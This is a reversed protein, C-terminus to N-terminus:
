TRPMPSAVCGWPEGEDFPGARRSRGATKGPSAPGSLSSKVLRMGGRVAKPRAAYLGIFNLSAVAPRTTRSPSGCTGYGPYGDDPLILSIAFVVVFAGGETSSMMLRGTTVAFGVLETAVQAPRMFSAWTPDTTIRSSQLTTPM